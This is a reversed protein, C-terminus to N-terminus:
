RKRMVKNSVAKKLMNQFKSVPFAGMIKRKRNETINVSQTFPFYQCDDIKMPSEAANESKVAGNINNYRTILRGINSLNRNIEREIPITPDKNM